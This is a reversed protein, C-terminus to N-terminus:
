SSVISMFLVIGILINFRKNSELSIIFIMLNLKTQGVLPCAKSNLKCFNSFDDAYQKPLIVINAQLKDAALGSTHNNYVESRIKERISKSSLKRAQDFNLLSMNLNISELFIILIARIGIM